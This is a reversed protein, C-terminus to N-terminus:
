CLAMLLIINAGGSVLRSARGRAAFTTPSSRLRTECSLLALRIRQAVSIDFVNRFRVQPSGVCQGVDSSLM